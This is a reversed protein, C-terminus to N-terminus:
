LTLELVILASVAVPKTVQIQCGSGMPSSFFLSKFTTKLGVWMCVCM